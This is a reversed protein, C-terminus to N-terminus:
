LLSRSDPAWFYQRIPRDTGHAVARAKAPDTSPAVWLNLVGDVPAMWLLWKGDTSLRGQAKSPNGFLKAREILPVPPAALAPLTPLASIPVTIALLSAAVLLRLIIKRDFDQITRGLVLTNAPYLV